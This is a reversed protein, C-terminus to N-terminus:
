TMSHLIDASWTVGRGVLTPPVPLPGIGPNATRSQTFHRKGVSIVCVIELVESM